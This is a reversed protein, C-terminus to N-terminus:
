SIRSNVFDSCCCCVFFALPRDVQNVLIIAEGYRIKLFIFFTLVVGSLFLFVKCVPHRGSADVRSLTERLDAPTRASCCSAPLVVFSSSM